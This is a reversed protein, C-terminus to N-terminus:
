VGVSQIRIKRDIKIGQTEVDRWTQGFFRSLHMGSVIVQLRLAPDAQIAKILGSLLGFDARSTTVVCIKRRKVGSSGM